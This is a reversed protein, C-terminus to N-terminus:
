TEKSFQCFEEVITSEVQVNSGQRYKYISRHIYSFNLSYINQNTEYYMPFFPSIARYDGKSGYTM